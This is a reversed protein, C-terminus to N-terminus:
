DIELMILEDDFSSDSNETKKAPKGGRSLLQGLIIRAQNSKAKYYAVRIGKVESIVAYANDLQKIYANIYQMAAANASSRYGGKETVPESKISNMKSSLQERYQSVSKEFNKYETSIDDLDEPNSCMKGIQEISFDTGYAIDEKEGYLKERLKTQWDRGLDSEGTLTEAMRTKVESVDMESMKNIEASWASSVKSTPSVIGTKPDVATTRDDDDKNEVAIANIKKIADDPDLEMGIAQGILKKGGEAKDYESAKSFNVTDQGFMNKYGNYKYGKFAEFNKARASDKYKDWLQKGSMRIKNIQFTLKEIISRLFKLIKKFFAAVKNKLDAISAETIADVASEDIAGYRMANITTEVIAQNTAEDDDYWRLQTEALFLPLAATAETLSLEPMEDRGSGGYFGTSSEALAMLESINIM